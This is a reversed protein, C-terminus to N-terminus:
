RSSEAYNSRTGDKKVAVVGWVGQHRRDLYGPSDTEAVKTWEGGASPRYYIEYGVVDREVNARWDVYTGLDRPVLMLDSPANPKKSADWDHHFLDRYYETFAPVGAIKLALERAYRFSNESGNISSIVVAGDVILSKNHYTRGVGTCDMCVLRAELKLKEKEAVQNLYAVVFQNDRPSDRTNRRDLIVKVGVGRRAAAVIEQLYPQPYETFNQERDAPGWWKNIYAASILLESKAQRLLGLFGKESDLTNDPSLIRTVTANGSVTVPKPKVPTYRICPGADYDDPQLPRDYLANYARVDTHGSAYDFDWVERVLKVLDGSGRIAAVWERNGCAPDLSYVSGVYNGTAIFVTEDDFIGYKAHTPNFRSSLDGDWKHYYLIEVGGNHLIEQAEKDSPFMDSGGPNREIAVQVKVGRKVAATLQGALEKNNFQYGTLKISREAEGILDFLLAGASDPAAAATLTMQGSATKVPFDSQGAFYVRAPQTLTGGSWAQATYETRLAGGERLRTIVQNEPTLPFSNVLQVPPGIWPAPPPQVAGYALIDAVQGEQDLLRVLDGDNGLIPSKQGLVKLDPVAKDTDVAYEFDPTRNWYQKFYVTDNALYIIQGPSLTLKPLLVQGSNSQISWGTLTRPQAGTNMLAIVEGRGDTGDTKLKLSRRAVPLVQYFRIEKIAEPDGGKACAALLPVMLLICLLPVLWRTSV